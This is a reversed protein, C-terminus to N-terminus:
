LVNNEVKEKKMKKKELREQYYAFLKEVIEVKQYFDKHFAKEDEERYEEDVMKYRRHACGIKPNFTELQGEGQKLRSRTLM